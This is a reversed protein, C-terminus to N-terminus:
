NLNFLLEASEKDRFSEAQRLKRKVNKLINDVISTTKKIGKRSKNCTYHAGDKIVQALIKRIPPYSFADDKLFGIKCAYGKGMNPKYSILRLNKKNFSNHETNNRIIRLEDIKQRVVSSTGDTSGDDVVIIEYDGLDPIRDICMGINEQENYCPIIISFSPSENNDNQM